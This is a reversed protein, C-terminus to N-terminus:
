TLPASIAECAPPYTSTTFRTGPITTTSAFWGTRPRVTSTSAWSSAPCTEVGETLPIAYPSLLVPVHYKGAPDAIEFAIVIEDTAMTSGTSEVATIMLVIIMTLCAVFDFKPIGFLSPETFGLASAQGVKDFNM